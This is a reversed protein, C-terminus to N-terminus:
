KRDLDTLEYNEITCIQFDWRITERTTVAEGMLLKIALYLFNVGALSSKHIGASMRPNIEILYVKGKHYKVQINYLYSLNFRKTLKEIDSVVM